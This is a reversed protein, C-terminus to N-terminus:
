DRDARGGCQRHDTRGGIRGCTGAIVSNRYQRRFWGRYRFSHCGVDGALAFGGARRRDGPGAWAVCRAACEPEHKEGAVRCTTCSGGHDSRRHRPHVCRCTPPDAATGPPESPVGRLTSACTTAGCRSAPRASATRCGRASTRHEFPWGHTHRTSCFPCVIRVTRVAGLRVVKTVPVVPLERVVPANM